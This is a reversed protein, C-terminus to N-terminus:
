ISQAIMWQAVFYTSLIIAQAAQFPQRFRNVALVTDSVVFLFAGGIAMLGGNDDLAEWRNFSQFWMLGIAVMYIIVPVTYKGLGPRLYLFAIGTIIVIPLLYLVDAIHNGTISFAVIYFIHAILFSVLGRLFYNDPLMLWTDGAMSFLLGVVILIQYTSSISVEQTLAIALVFFM